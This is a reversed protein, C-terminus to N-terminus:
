IMETGNQKDRSHTGWSRYWRYNHIEQRPLFYHYQLLHLLMSLLLSSHCCLLASSRLWSFNQYPTFCLLVQQVSKYFQLSQLYPSYFADSSIWFRCIWFLISIIKRILQIEITSSLSFLLPSHCQNQFFCFCIFGVWWVVLLLLLCLLFLLFFFGLSKFLFVFCSISSRHTVLFETHLLLTM